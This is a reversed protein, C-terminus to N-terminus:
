RGLISDQLKQMEDRLKQEQRELASIRAQVGAKKEALESKLRESQTKVMINGVIRYSESVGELESLASEVEVLQAQYAARQATQTHLAQEVQELRKLQENDTM